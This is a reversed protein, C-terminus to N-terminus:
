EETEQLSVRVNDRERERGVGQWPCPVPMEKPALTKVLQCVGDRWFAGCFSPKGGCKNLRGSSGSNPVM